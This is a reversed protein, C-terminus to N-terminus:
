TCKQDLYPTVLATPCGPIQTISPNGPPPDAASERGQRRNEDGSSRHSGSPLRHRYVAPEKRKVYGRLPKTRTAPVSLSFPFRDSCDLTVSLNHSPRIPQSAIYIHIYISLLLGSLSLSLIIQNIDLILKPTSIHFRVLM